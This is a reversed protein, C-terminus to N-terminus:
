KKRGNKSPKGTNKMTKQKNVSKFIETQTQKIENMCAQVNESNIDSRSMGKMKMMNEELLKKVEPNDLDINGFNKMNEEQEKNIDINIESGEEQIKEEYVKKSFEEKNDIDFNELEEKGRFL